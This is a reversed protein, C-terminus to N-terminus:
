ANQRLVKGSSAIPLASVVNIVVPVKHASLVERCFVRIEERVANLDGPAAPSEERLVVDAAVLSGTVPNKKARVLSVKVRPHRNLVEEIEEPHVKLGGVKMVHDRRGSFFYRNSRLEVVDGTDVYGDEGRLRAATKGLYCSATRQSRVHLTGERVEIEVGPTSSLVAAPFGAECDHVEFVVGAETSAFAHVIRAEPYAAPLQHLITRDVVEGSLRVYTPSIRQALPSMLAHRWHSPTGSIHTVGAQAARLFFDGVSEREDSFVM